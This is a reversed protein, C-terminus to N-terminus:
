ITEVVAISNRVTGVISDRVMGVLIWVMTLCYHDFVVISDRVMGVAVILDQVTGVILDQVTGVISNQVMAAVVVAVSQDHLGGVVPGALIWAMTWCYHDFVIEEIPRRELRVSCCDLHELCRELRVLGFCAVSVRFM